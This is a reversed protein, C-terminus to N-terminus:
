VTICALSGQKQYFFLLNGTKHIDERKQRVKIPSRNNKM